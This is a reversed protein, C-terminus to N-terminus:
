TEGEKMMPNNNYQKRIVATVKHTVPDEAVSDVHYDKKTDYVRMVYKNFDDKTSFEIQVLICASLLKMRDNGMYRSM